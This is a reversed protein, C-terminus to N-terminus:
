KRGQGSEWRRDEDRPARNRYHLIKFDPGDRLQEVLEFRDEFPPFFADGEVQRKVVTLYLDSCLPLAEAYVEAGGCIFVEDTFEEPRIKDLSNFIWIDQNKDGDIKTFHFQYLRKLSRGGRWEKYEGFLEPRSRILRRPHRTLILKRRNPLPNPLAEFTKRGMVVVNGETMKKFWKLDEPLHWPIKNGKGIVRNESMAAIAKFYNMTQLWLRAAVLPQM